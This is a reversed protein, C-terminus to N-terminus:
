DLIKEDLKNKDDNLDVINDLLKDIRNEKTKLNRKLEKNDIQYQEKQEELKEIKKLCVENTAKVTDYYAQVTEYRKKYKAKRRRKGIM